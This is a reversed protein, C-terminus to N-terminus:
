FTIWTDKFMDCNHLIAPGIKDCDVICLFPVHTKSSEGTSWEREVYIYKDVWNPLKAKKNNHTIDNFMETYKM